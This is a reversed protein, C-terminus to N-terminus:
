GAIQGSDETPQWLRLKPEKLPSPVTAGDIDRLHRTLGSRNAVQISLGPRANAELIMPGDSSDIVQDIGVYGLGTAKALRVACDVTRSWDPIRFGEIPQHTDPHRTVAQNHCVGGFTRGTKLDVGAAVAGQHLNARGGSTSTPLRLMGMVPAGRYVIIRIDPTGGYSIDAFAPHTVIRQEVIAVDAQGGLSYLGSLVMSLHYKLDDSSYETGGSGRFATGDHGNVVMIGRGGAGRAPKIVFDPNSLLTDPLGAIAGFRDVVAYTQPTPINNEVCLKKTLLKNDVCPFRSRPNNPQIYDANRENIGLVGARRLQAPTAFSFFKM